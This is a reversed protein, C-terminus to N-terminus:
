LVWMGPSDMFMVGDMDIIVPGSRELLSALALELAVGHDRRDQRQGAVYTTRASSM